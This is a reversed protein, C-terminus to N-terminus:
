PVLVTVARSNAARLASTGKFRLQYNTSGYVPVVFRVRGEANTRYRGVYTWQQGGRRQWLEVLFGAGVYSGEGADYLAGTITVPEDCRCAGGSNGIYLATAHQVFLAGTLAQGRAIADVSRGEEDVTSASTIEWRGPTSYTDFTTYGVWYGDAASGAVRELPAYDFAGGPGRFQASAYLIGDPDRLHMQVRVNVPRTTIDIVAPRLYTSPQVTPLNDVAASVPASFTGLVLGVTVVVAAAIKRLM